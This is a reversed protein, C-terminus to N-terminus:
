ITRDKNKFNTIVVTKNFVLAFTGAFRFLLKNLVMNSRLAVMFAILLKM